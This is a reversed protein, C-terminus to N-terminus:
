IGVVASDGDTTTFEVQGTVQRNEYTQIIAIATLVGPVSLAAAEIGAQLVSLPAVQGLIQQSYPVGLSQDFFVEGLFTRVASAVDQATSYPPTAIILNGNGDLAIDWSAADLMLTNQTPGATM